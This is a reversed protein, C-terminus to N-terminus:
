NGPVWQIAKFRELKFNHPKFLQLQHTYSSIAWRKSKVSDACADYNVFTCLVNVNHSLLCIIYNNDNSPHAFCRPIIEHSADLYNSNTSISSSALNYLWIALFRQPNAVHRCRLHATPINFRHIFSHSFLSFWSCNSCLLIGPLIVIHTVVRM